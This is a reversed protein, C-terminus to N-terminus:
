ARKNREGESLKADEERKAREELDLVRKRLAQEARVRENYVDRAVPGDEQQPTNPGNPSAGAQPNSGSQQGAPVGQAPNQSNLGGATPNASINGASSGGAPPNSGAGNGHPNM